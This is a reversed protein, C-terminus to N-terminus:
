ISVLFRPRIATLWSGIKECGKGIEARRASKGQERLIVSTSVNVCSSVSSKAEANSLGRSSGLKSRLSGNAREIAIKPITRNAVDSLTSRQMM